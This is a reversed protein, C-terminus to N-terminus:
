GDIAEELTAHGRVATEVGPELRFFEGSWEFVEFAPRGGSPESPARHRLLGESRILAEPSPFPGGVTIPDAGHFFIQGDVDVVHLVGASLVPAGSRSVIRHLFAVLGPPDAIRLNM